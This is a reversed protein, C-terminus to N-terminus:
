QRDMLAALRQKATELGPHDPPLWSVARKYWAIAEPVRGRSDFQRARTLADAGADHMQKRTREIAESLGSVPATRLKEYAALAETWQAGEELKAAAKFDEAAQQRIGENSAALRQDVDRFRPVDRSLSTLLDRAETFQRARLRQLAVTYRQRIDNRRQLLAAASEGPRAPVAAADPDSDAPRPRAVPAAPRTKAPPPSEPAAEAVSPPPNPPSAPVVAVPAPEPARTTVEAPAPASAATVPAAVPAEDDPRLLLALVVGFAGFVLISGYIIIRRIPSPGAPAAAAPAAAGVAVASGVVDRRAAGQVSAHAVAQRMRDPALTDRDRHFIQTAEGSGASTSELSAEPRALTLQYNGLTVALGPVLEIRAIRREGVWSGNASNLDLYVWRDGERRLEAHHRSLTKDPDQLPIENDGSRGIRLDNQDLQTEIEVVGMRTLRVLLM